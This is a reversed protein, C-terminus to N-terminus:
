EKKRLCFIFNALGFTFRCIGRSLDLFCQVIYLGDNLFQVSQRVYTFQKKMHQLINFVGSDDESTMITIDDTM